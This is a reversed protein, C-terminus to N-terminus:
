SQPPLQSKHNNASARASSLENATESPKRKGPSKETIEIEVINFIDKGEKANLINALRSADARRFYLRAYQFLPTHNVNERYIASVYQGRSTNRIAFLKM